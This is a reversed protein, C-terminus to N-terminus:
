RSTQYYGDIFTYGLELDPVYLKGIASEIYDEIVKTETPSFNDTYM